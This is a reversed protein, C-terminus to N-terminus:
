ELLLRKTYIMKQVRVRDVIIDEKKKEIQHKDMLRSFRMEFSKKSLPDKLGTDRIFDKYEEYLENSDCGNRFQM